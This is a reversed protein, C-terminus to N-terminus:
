QVSKDVMDNATSRLMSPPSSSNVSSDAQRMIFISAMSILTAVGFRAQGLWRFSESRTDLDALGGWEISLIGIRQTFPEATEFLIADLPRVQQSSSTVSGTPVSQITACPPSHGSAYCVASATANGGGAPLFGLAISKHSKTVGLNHVDPKQEAQNGLQFKTQDNLDGNGLHVADSFDRYALGNIVEYILGDGSITLLARYTELISTSCHRIWHEAHGPYETKFIKYPVQLRRFMPAVTRKFLELAKGAGSCPNVFVLYPKLGAPESSILAQIQQALKQLKYNDNMVLYMTYEKLVLGYRLQPNKKMADDTFELYRLRLRGRLRDSFRFLRPYILRCDILQERQIIRTPFRFVSSSTLCNGNGTMHEESIRIGHNLVMLKASITKRPSNVSLQVIYEDPSANIHCSEVIPM